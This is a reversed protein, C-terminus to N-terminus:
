DLRGLFFNAQAYEDCGAAARRLGGGHGGCGAAARRLGGCRAGRDARIL